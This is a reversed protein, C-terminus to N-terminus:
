YSWQTSKDNEDDPEKPTLNMRNMDWVTKRLIEESLKGRAHEKFYHDLMRSRSALYKKPDKRANSIGEEVISNPLASGFSVIRTGHHHAGPDTEGGIHGGSPSHDGTCGKDCTEPKIRPHYAAMARGSFTYKTDAYDFMTCMMDRAAKITELKLEIKPRADKPIRGSSQDYAQKIFYKGKQAIHAQLIESAAIVPPESTSTSLITPVLCIHNDFSVMAMGIGLRSVIADSISTLLNACDMMFNTYDFNLQPECAIFSKKFTTLLQLPTYQERLQSHQRRNKDARSNTESATLTHLVIEITKSKSYGLGCKKWSQQSDSLNQILPSTITIKPGQNLALRSTSQPKRNGAMLHQPPIGIAVLYRNAAVDGDYHPGTKPVLTDKAGFSALVMDMDHWDRQLKGMARLGKYLHAMSLVYFSHNAINTGAQHMGIKLDVLIAGTHAPLAREMASASCGLEERIRTHQKSPLEHPGEAPMNVAEEFQNSAKAVWKLMDLANKVDGMDERRDTCFGDLDTALQKHNKFTDQLAGVGHSIHDGLLDYLDLYIQCAM